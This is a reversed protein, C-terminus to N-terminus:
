EWGHRTAGARVRAGAKERIRQVIDAIEQGTAPIAGKKIAATRVKKSIEFHPFRDNEFNRYLELKIGLEMAMSLLERKTDAVMLGHPRNDGRGNVREVYVSM